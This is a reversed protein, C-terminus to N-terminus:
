QEEVDRASMSFARLKEAFGEYMGNCAVPLCPDAEAGHGRRAALEARRTVGAETIVPLSGAPMEGVRSKAKRFEAMM